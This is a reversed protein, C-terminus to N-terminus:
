IDNNGLGVVAHGGHERLLRGEETLTRNIEKLTELQMDKAGVYETLDTVVRELEATRQLAIITDGDIGARTSASLVDDHAATLKNLEAQLTKHDSRLRSLESKLIDHERLIQEIEQISKGNRCIRGIEKSLSDSKCRLNNRQIQLNHNHQKLRSIITDYTTVTSQLTKIKEEGEQFLSNLQSIENEQKQYTETLEVHKGMLVDLEQQAKLGISKDEKLEVITKNMVVADEKLQMFGKLDLDKKEMEKRLHAITGDLGLIKEKQNATEKGWFKIKEVHDILKSDKVEVKAYLVAKENQLSKIVKQQKSIQSQQTSIKNDMTMLRESHDNKLRVITSEFTDIRKETLRLMRSCKVLEDQTGIHSEVSQRWKKESAELAKKLNVVEADKVANLQQQQLFSKELHQMKVTFEQKLAASEEIENCSKKSLNNTIKSAGYTSSIVNTVVEKEVKFDGETGGSLVISEKRNLEDNSGDVGNKIVYDEEEDEKDPFLDSFCNIMAGEEQNRNLNSNAVGLGLLFTERTMRQPAELELGYNDTLVSTPVEHEKQFVLEFHRPHSADALSAQVGEVREIWPAEKGKAFVEVLSLLSTSNSGWGMRELIIRFARGNANGRGMMRGYTFLGAGSSFGHLAASFLAPDASVVSNMECNQTQGLHHEIDPFNKPLKSRMKDMNELMKPPFTVICKLKRGVHVASPQFSFQTAHQLIRWKKRQFSSSSSGSSSVSIYWQVVSGMPLSIDQTLRVELISNNTVPVAPLSTAPGSRPSSVSPYKLDVPCYGVGTRVFLNALPHKSPLSHNSSITHRRLRQNKPSGKTHSNSSISSVAQHTLLTQKSKAWCDGQITSVLASPSTSHADLSSSVHKQGTVITTGSQHREEKKADTTSADNEDNDGGHGQTLKGLFIQASKSAAGLFTSSTSVSVQSTPKSNGEDEMSESKKVMPETSNNNGTGARLHGFMAQAAGTATVRLQDAKHKKSAPSKHETKKDNTNSEEEKSNKITATNTLPSLSPPADTCDDVTTHSPTTEDSPLRCLLPEDRKKEENSPGAGSGDSPPFTNNYSHEFQNIKEVRDQVYPLSEQDEQITTNTRGHEYNAINDSELEERSIINKPEENLLIKIKERRIEEKPIREITHTENKNSKEKRPEEKTFVGKIFAKEALEEEIPKKETSEKKTLEEKTSEDETFKDIGFGNKSSKDITNEDKTSEDISPKDTTSQDTASDDKMFGKTRWKGSTPEEITLEQNKFVGRKSEICEEKGHSGKVVEQTFEEEMPKNCTAGGKTPKDQFSEERTNRNRIRIEEDKRSSKEKLERENTLKEKNLKNEKL